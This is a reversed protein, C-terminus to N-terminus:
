ITDIFEGRQNKIICYAGVLDSDKHEFPSNQIHEYLVKGNKKYSSFSDGKYVLGIDIITEPYVLLMKNKYAVYDYSVGRKQLTIHVGDFVLGEAKVRKYLTALEEEKKYQMWPNKLNKEKDKETSLRECYAAFKEINAKEEATDKETQIANIIKIKEM